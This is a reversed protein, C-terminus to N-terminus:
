PLRNDIFTDREGIVSDHLERLVEEYFNAVKMSTNLPDGVTFSSTTVHALLGDGNYESGNTARVLFIMGNLLKVIDRESSVLNSDDDVGMKTEAFSRIDAEMTNWLGDNTDQDADNAISIDYVTIGGITIEPNSFRATKVQFYERQDNLPLSTDTSWPGLIADVVEDSANRIVEVIYGAM